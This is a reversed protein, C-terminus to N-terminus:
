RSSLHGIWPKIAGEGEDPVPAALLDAGFVDGAFHFAGASHGLFEDSFVEPPRYQVANSLRSKLLGLKEKRGRSKCDVHNGQHASVFGETVQFDIEPLLRSHGHAVPSLSM